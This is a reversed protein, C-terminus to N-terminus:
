VTVGEQQDLRSLAERAIYEQLDVFADDAIKQQILNIRKERAKAIENTYYWHQIAIWFIRLPSRGPAPDGPHRVQLYGRPMENNM